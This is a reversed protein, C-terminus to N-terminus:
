SDSDRPAAIETLGVATETLKVPTQTLAVGVEKLKVPTDTLKVVVQKLKLSIQLLEFLIETSKISVKHIPFPCVFAVVVLVLYFLSHLLGVHAPVALDCFCLCM